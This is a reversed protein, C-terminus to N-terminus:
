AGDRLTQAIAQELYDCYRGLMDGRESDDSLWPNMLTHRLLFVHDAELAADRVTIVFTDADFGLKRAMRRAAAASLNRRLMSTHSGIFQCHVNSAAPDLAFHRFLRRGFANMRALSRNGSPNVAICVLNTDPEVPM